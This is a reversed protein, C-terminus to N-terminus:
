EIAERRKKSQVVESTGSAVIEYLIATKGPAPRLLRGLRQIFQRRSGTGSVLIGVNADPIDLGEDGVTTVVLVGSRAAKFAELARLREDKDLEGHILFANLRSAIEEAQKRYQTFVIIKSGKNLEEKAIEVAKSIKNVSGQVVEQMQARVRLAEIANPEGKKAAELVEQFTRGMALKQYRSRLEDYLKQEDPLLKVTVRRIVYPALFGEQMLESASKQYVIGGILPFVEEQKNDERVATASLGMRYPALSGKAIAKFKDAPLHHAEDFILLGFHRSLGKIHRYATQYTTVTINAIVKEDGYFAGLLGGADTFRRISDMWQRLHEKTYVVILTKVNLRAMAAIAVVTKGSGTPLVIVGRNGNKIWADIAEQQYTRLTGNFTINRPLKMNNLLGVKDDVILGKSTFFKVVDFYLYPDGVYKGVAHSYKLDQSGLEYVYPKLMVESSVTLWGKAEDYSVIVSYKAKLYNIVSKLDAEPILKSMDNMVKAVDEPGLESEKMKGEDLEFLSAGGERGLYRSFELLRRFDEDSIWGKVRFRPPAQM